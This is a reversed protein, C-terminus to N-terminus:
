HRTTSAPTVSWPALRAPDIVPLDTGDPLRAFDGFAAFWPAADDTVELTATAPADAREVLLGFYQGAKRVVVVLNEDAADDLSLQEGLSVLPMLLDDVMGMLVARDATDDDDDCLTLVAVIDAECLALRVGGTEVARVVMSEDSLLEEFM